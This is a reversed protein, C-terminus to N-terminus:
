KGKPLASKEKQQSSIIKTEAAKMFFNAICIAKPAEINGNVFFMWAATAAIGCGTLRLGCSFATNLQETTPQFFRKIM